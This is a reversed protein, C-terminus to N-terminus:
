NQHPDSQLENWLVLTGIVQHLRVLSPVQSAKAGILRCVTRQYTDTSVYGTAINRRTLTDLSISRAPDPVLTM